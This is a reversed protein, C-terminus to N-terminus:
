GPARGSDLRGQLLVAHRRAAATRVRVRVRVRARIRVRVRVRLRLRVSVRARVLRAAATELAALRAHVHLELRGDCLM